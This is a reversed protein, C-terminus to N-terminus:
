KKEPRTVHKQVLPIGYLVSRTKGAVFQQQKDIKVKQGIWLDSDPGFVDVLKDNTTNNIGWRFDRNQNKVTLITRDSTKFKTEEKPIVETFVIEFVIGSEVEDPNLFAPKCRKSIQVLSKV